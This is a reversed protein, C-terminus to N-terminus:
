RRSAKRRRMWGLSALGSGFLALSAPEPTPTPTLDYTVGVIAERSAKTTFNNAEGWGELIQLDANSGLVTGVSGGDAYGLANPTLEILFGDTEGAAIQINLGASLATFLGGGASTVAGGTFISTWFASGSTVASLAGTHEYITYSTDDGGVSTDTTSVADILFDTVTINNLANVQFAEGFNQNAPAIATDVQTARAGSSQFGLTVCAVVALNLLRM